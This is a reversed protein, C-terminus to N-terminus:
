GNYRLRLCEELEEKYESHYLKKLAIEVIQDIRQRTVGIEQAIKENSHFVGDFLGFRVKLIYAEKSTLLKNLCEDITKSLRNQITIDFPSISDSPICDSLTTLTDDGLEKDLSECTKSLVILRVVDTISINMRKAIEDEKPERGLENTLKNYTTNFKNINTKIYSPIRITRSQEVIADLIEQRIWWTAYTSFKYGLKYDYSDCAHMLGMSGIQNLDSLPLGRNVFKRAISMVLRLNAEILRNKALLGNEVDNTLKDYEEKSINLLDAKDLKDQAEKGMLIIKSLGMEEDSSLRRVTGIENLYLKTLDGNFPSNNDFKNFEDSICELDKEMENEDNISIIVIDENSLMEYLEKYEPSSKDFYKSLDEDKIINNNTKALAKIKDFCKKIDM